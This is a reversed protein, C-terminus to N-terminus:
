SVDKLYITIPKISPKKNSYNDNLRKVEKVVRTIEVGVAALKQSARLRITIFPLANQLSDANDVSKTLERIDYKLQDRKAKLLSLSGKLNRM